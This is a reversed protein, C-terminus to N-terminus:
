HTTRPFSLDFGRLPAAFCLPTLSPRGLDNCLFVPATSPSLLFPRPTLAMALFSCIAGDETCLISLLVSTFQNVPGASTVDRVRTVRVPM